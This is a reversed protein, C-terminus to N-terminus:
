IEILEEYLLIITSAASVHCLKIYILIYKEFLYLSVLHILMIDIVLEIQYNTFSVELSNVKVNKHILYM